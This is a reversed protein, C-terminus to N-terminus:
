VRKIFGELVSIRRSIEALSEGTQPNELYPILEALPVAIFGYTWLKEDLIQDDYIIIDIDITRPANKDSIRIRGLQTEISLLVSKKLADSSYDTQIRVALNLFNPGSSGVPATEWTSSTELVTVSRKLMEMALPINIEPSINSGILLYADKKM